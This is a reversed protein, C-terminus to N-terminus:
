LWGIGEGLLRVPKKVESDKPNGEKKGSTVM